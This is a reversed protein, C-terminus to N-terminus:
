LCGEGGDDQAAKDSAPLAGCDSRMRAAEAETDAQEAPWSKLRQELYVWVICAVCAGAQLQFSIGCSSSCAFLQFEMAIQLM